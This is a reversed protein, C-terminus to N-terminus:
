YFFVDSSQQHQKLLAGYYPHSELLSPNEALPRLRKVWNRYFTTQDLIDLYKLSVEQQRNILNTEALRLLARGSKNYNPVSEMAEFAARQAMNVMGLQMFVDSMVFGSSSGNLMKNSVSFNNKFTQEDIKRTKFMSLLALNRLCVSKTQEKSYQSALTKWDDARALMDAQFEETTGISHREWYYDIDRVVQRMPYPVLWASGIVCCILVVMAVLLSRWRPLLAVLLLIVAPGLLWYGAVMIILFVPINNTAKAPLYALLLLTLLIAITFTLPFYIQTALYWMIISPVFSLAWTGIGGTNLNTCRCLVRWVLFQGLVFLLAYILAGLEPRIFFQVRLEGLYQALGGPISLRDLLYDSSWLFLQSQERVLLLYPKALMWYCFVATAILITVTTKWYKTSNQGAM